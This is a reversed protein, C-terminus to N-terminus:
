CDFHGLANELHLVHVEHFGLGQVHDFVFARLISAEIAVYVCPLGVRPVRSVFKAPKVSFSDKDTSFSLMSVIKPV